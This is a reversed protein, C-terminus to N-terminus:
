SQCGVLDEPELRRVARVARLRELEASPPDGPTAVYRAKSREPAHPRPPTLYYLALSNRRMEPPCTLASPFGHFSPATTSFLLGRNFVPAIAALRHDPHVDADADASGDGGRTPAWLELEGGHADADWADATLYVILNFRRELGSLPHRSYDLHLDLKEGTGHSHLGGGHCYPDSQLSAGEDEGTIRRVAEVLSPGCLAFLADRLCTPMRATDSCARKRELPNDYVHWTDVAHPEPFAGRLEQAVAPAFFEDIVAFPVDGSAAFSAAIKAHSDASSWWAGLLAALDPADANIATEPIQRRGYTSASTAAMGATGTVEKAFM